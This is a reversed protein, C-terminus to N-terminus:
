SWQWLNIAYLWPDSKYFSRTSAESVHICLQYELRPCGLSENPQSVYVYLLLDLGPPRHQALLRCSEMWGGVSCQLQNWQNTGRKPKIHALWHFWSCNCKVPIFVQWREMAVVDNSSGQHWCEQSCAKRRHQLGSTSRVAQFVLQYIVKVTNSITTPPTDAARVVVTWTYSNETVIWYLLWLDWLM